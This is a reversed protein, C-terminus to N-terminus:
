GNVKWVHILSKENEEAQREFIYLFGRERDFSVAGVFYRKGREFDFGPDFLYEDIDLSAYPQPQYTEMDGKAVAALDAPDYFIIQAKIGESWWGREDHPWDPVPPVPIELPDEIPYRVGNSYGYWCDGTVKTGAFIVASKDGATLWAGGSWEDPEKFGNMEMSDYNTIEIAGPEQVGYLLLPTVSDLTSGSNPPNGDNWPGYAFLAPGQGSWHGDRFRGTALRQGPTNAAAWDAPIEFLYDNTAYNTYGDLHWAGTTQPASLDLECWGHTPSQEFEFHQGWCFHLKGTTQSGQAPLYELDARPIELYGFMGGTIDHFEQLTAAMNLESSNKTPSIVPVPISIESVQQHHDHGVAFISGPYGDDPGDPDGDPYYTMAYGSYEWNSGGSGDPLRFAGLYVLDDLQILQTSSGTDTDTDSGQSDQPNWGAIKAMMWWFAQAKIDCNLSHSHACDCSSCQGPHAICWEEAWNRSGGDYYCGDDADRDLYYNGDPDYSEIDAFDFLIKGNARCYDRIQNNRIHLNGSEGTGDLHGTMYIFVVDPYDRELQDMAQLYTNIGEETNDSVGGCWSWMIVNRDNDARNLRDITTDRWSLDGNHSLDIGDDEQYSLSGAGSNYDYLSSKMAEMGSTIQSGHSTHGYWIRLSNKALNIYEAPVQSIDPCTHDIILGSEPTTPSDTISVSAEDRAIGGRSDDVTLRVVVTAGATDVETAEFYAQPSTANHITISPGSVQTWSYTLPDGDLDSATGTLNVTKGERYSGYTGAECTPSHNVGGAATYTVKKDLEKAREKIVGPLGFGFGAYAVNSLFPVLLLGLFVYFIITIRKM